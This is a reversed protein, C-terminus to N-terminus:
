NGDAIPFMGKVYINFFLNYKQQVEDLEEMDRLIIQNGYCHIM